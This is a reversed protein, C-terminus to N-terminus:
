YNLALAFMHVPYIEDPLNNQKISKMVRLNAKDFVQEMLKIPRTVSSDDEDYELNDSSTTNEKIVIVGNVALAESCRKLFAILDYDNLYGLVWQCWIVDYEKLPVFDQLGVHYLSGLKANNAGIYNKATNIFKEDQEVLDVKQFYPMLLNKSVRGIGAGCDLALNTSPPNDSSLINNLFLKSGDIDVASIHGYGGLVGDITAPVNAWYNAANKYFRNDTM